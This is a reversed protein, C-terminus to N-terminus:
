RAPTAQWNLVITIPTAGATDRPIPILFKRGDKAVAYPRQNGWTTLGTQFLRQPNLAVTNRTTDIDAAMMSGDFGLFFLERGDGRWRPAWGGNQSIKDERQAGPFTCVYVETRGSKNSQYAIWHGDPSLSPSSVDYASPLFVSPKREGALPLMWLDGNDSTGKTYVLFHGDPSWTPSKIVTASDLLEAEGTGDSHRLYLASTGDTKTLTFAVYSGDASWAPDFERDSHPRSPLRAALGARELDVRWIDVSPGGPQLTLESVAVKSDDRSLDLNIYVGPDGVTGLPKGARDFWALRSVSNGARSYVIVGGESASFVGRRTPPYFAIENPLVLPDGQLQLTRLDFGQATLMGARVLVLRGQAYEVNSEFPGLSRTDTSTLSGVRLESGAALQVLYLFRDDDPLFYPWHHGTEGKALSTVPTPTGGHASVQHLVDWDAFVIVDKRNWTGSASDSSRAPCVPVPLGGNLRITKLEDKAFFGISQSDPSWFPAVAGETGVLRRWSPRAVPRVWLMSTGESYAVVVLHQGDPSVAIEPAAGSSADTAFRWNDPPDVDFQVPSVPVATRNRIVLLSVTGLLAVALLTAITWALRERIPHRVFVVATGAAGLTGSSLASQGDDIEIRADAIDHLRNHPNKRLCHQLLTRVSVPTDVPLAHWDPDRELIHAFTDSITEGEFAPRGTLMEYLVCAFAWIDTRKDVPHGRAQEPSMYAPTGLIRGDATGGFSGSMLPTPDSGIAITKGLGFDLIKARPAAPAVGSTQQLVINAPKLDRHVIGKEHAADLADAIESAIALAEAIPLPGRELREALTPGEVLELVLATLGEAEEVGYIAGIHPHNLTALLRAERTFRSRRDPDATFHRPLIKIAVDRGLKTDRARYVEGMGGVGLTSLITFSGLQRGLMSIEEAAQPLEKGLVDPAPIELFQPSASEYHLLSEVEQRLADNGACAQKVFARREEPPRELAAHYIRSIQNRQDPEM